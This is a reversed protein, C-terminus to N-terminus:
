KVWESETSLKIKALIKTIEECQAQLDSIDIDTINSESMLELWYATEYAEKFAICVKSYFDKRSQGAIAERINAGISTASRLLQTSLIYEKQEQLKKYLAIVNLSFIKTKSIIINEKM